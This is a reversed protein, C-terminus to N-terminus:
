RAKKFFFEGIKEEGRKNKGEIRAYLSGDEKLTYIIKNPFDHEPNEFVAETDTLNILKFSVPGPNHPVEAAYFIDEGIKEIKLSETFITDGNKITCADGKFLNDDAKVWNEYMTGGNGEGVWRDLVWNLKDMSFPEEKPLQQSSLNKSLMLILFTFILQNVFKM